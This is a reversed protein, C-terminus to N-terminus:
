REGSNLFVHMILIIDDRISLYGKMVSNSFFIPCLQMYIINIIAKSWMNSFLIKTEPRYFLGSSILKGYKIKQPLLKGLSPPPLLMIRGDTLELNPTDESSFIVFIYKSM